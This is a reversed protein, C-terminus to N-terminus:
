NTGATGQYRAMLIPFNATEAIDATVNPSYLQRLSHSSFQSGMCILDYQNEKLEALIEEIINGNRTRVKAQLGLERAMQLGKRLTRGPLTDTEALRQWNERINRAEPYDLDVPPVVHLFTVGAGTMQAVKLGLNEATMVYDLGGLCILVKQVPLRMVPVYLIPNVVESMIQRFSRGVMMRRLSSRGFPGFVFLQLPDNRATKAIVDEAPGYKLELRYRVGQEQFFGVARSFMEEVPHKEDQPEIVGVLTIEIQMKGALWAAYEISPWTGEYGNTFVLLEPKM